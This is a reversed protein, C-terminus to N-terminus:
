KQVESSLRPRVLILLLISSATMAFVVPQAIDAITWAVPLAAIQAICSLAMLSYAVPDEQEPRHWTKVITPISGIVTVSLGISVAVLPNRTTAWSGIGVVAGTMCMRDLRSWGPAGYRFALLVILIDGLGIVTIQANLAGAQYMGGATLMSLTMWILWTAKSPKTQRRLIARVYPVYAAIALLGALTNLLQRAEM